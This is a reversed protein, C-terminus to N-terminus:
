RAGAALLEDVEAGLSTRSTRSSALRLAQEFAELAEDLRGLRRLMTGRAAHFPHYSDLGDGIADLEALAAEPGDREGLAITRNLAM